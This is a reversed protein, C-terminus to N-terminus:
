ASRITNAEGSTGYGPANKMFRVGLLDLMLDTTTMPMAMAVIINAAVPCACASQRPRGGTPTAGTTRTRTAGGANRVSIRM